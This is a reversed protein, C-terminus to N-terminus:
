KGQLNIRNVLAGAGILENVNAEINANLKVPPLEPQSVSQGEVQIRLHTLEGEGAIDLKLLSYELDELAAEAQGVRPDGAPLGLSDAMAKTESLRLRGKRGPVSYLFGEEYYLRGDRVAFPLKGYLEGTVEGTLRSQLAFVRALDIHEAYVTVAFEPAGPAMEVAHTTLVGGCWGIRSREIFLARPADIQFYVEGNDFPLGVVQAAAFRLAQHTETRPPFLERFIIEAEAKEISIKPKALAFGGDRLQVTAVGAPGLRDIFLDAEVAAAGALSAKRLPGEPLLPLLWGAKALDPIQGQLRTRLGAPATFILDGDVTAGGSGDSLEVRGAATARWGELTCALRVPKVAVVRWHAAQASLTVPRVSGDTAAAFGRAGSWVFPVAAAVGDVSLAEGHLVTGNAVDLQGTAHVLALLRALTFEEALRALARPEPFEARELRLSLMEARFATNGAATELGSAAADASLVPGRDTWAIALGAQVAARLNVGGVGVSLEGRGDRLSLSGTAASGDAPLTGSALLVFAVEPGSVKVEPWRRCAEAPSVVLMGSAQATTGEGNRKVQVALNTARLGPVVELRADDLRATLGQASLGLTVPGLTVPRGAVTLGTVDTKASATWGAAGQVLTAEGGAVGKALDAWEFPLRAATVRIDKLSGAFAIDAPGIRGDAVTGQAQTASGEFTGEAVSGPARWALSLEPMSVSAGGARAQVATSAIDAEVGHLRRDDGM